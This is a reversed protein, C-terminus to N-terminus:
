ILRFCPNPGLLGRKSSFASGEEIAREEYSLDPRLDIQPCRHPKLLFDHRKQFLVAQKPM